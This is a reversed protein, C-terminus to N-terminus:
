PSEVVRVFDIRYPKVHITEFSVCVYMEGGETCASVEDLWGCQVRGQGPEEPVVLGKTSPREPKPLYPPIYLLGCGQLAFAAVRREWEEALLAEPRAGFPVAGLFQGEMVLAHLIPEVPSQSGTSPACGTITTAILFSLTKFM